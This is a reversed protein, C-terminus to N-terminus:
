LGYNIVSWNFPIGNAGNPLSSMEKAKIFTGNSTPVYAVWKLLCDLASIDTALMTIQKLDTCGNFMSNYCNSVLIKAPLVPTDTLSSCGFFMNSYCYPMLVTAPLAPAVILSSCNAFMHTYCNVALSTAPLMPVTTLNNCGLFMHGYCETALTTAPLEPAKILSTCNTFMNSYCKSALVQAPLEPAITLNKCNYFMFSCSSEALKSASIKPAKQLNTCGEFMHSYCNNTLNKAPLDPAATLSTCGKFMNYYCDSALSKAPLKPASTLKNCGAGTFLSCFRANSMDTTTYNEYDVLTRIDGTCLIPTNVINSFIFQTYDTVSIATGNINKGRLRLSGYAGGFTIVKSAVEAWEGDNVSYELGNLPKSLNFTQKKEATFTLYPTGLTPDIIEEGDGNDDGEGDGDGNDDGEDDGNGEDNSIKVEGTITIYKNRNFTFSQNFDVTQTNNKANTILLSFGDSLIVPPVVIWFETPSEVSSSIDVPTPCTLRISKGTGIMECTPDGDIVATVKAEGSIAQEGKATITISSISIENGYLRLRLYSGVNKFILQSSESVSVMTNAGVGFSKEAYTQEAPMKVTLFCDTEDLTIDTSHPYVAYNYSVDTGYWFEDDVSVQGFGGANAGTQGKFMYTRNYTNKRFLTVCDKEHWRMRVRDDLYTRSDANEFVAYFDENFTSSEEIM